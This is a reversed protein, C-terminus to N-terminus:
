LKGYGNLMSWYHYPFFMTSEKWSLTDPQDSRTKIYSHSDMTVELDKFYKWYDNYDKGSLTYHSLVYYATHDFVRVLNRNLAEASRNHELYKFIQRVMFFTLYLSTAELPEIFGGSLGVVAVNTKISETCVEPNFKLWSASDPNTGPYERSYELWADEDSIYDSSYAYGTGRRNTLPIEWIWGASRAKTTTYRNLQPLSPQPCAIARNNLHERYSKYNMEVQSALLKKFGTADIYFDASLKKGTRTILHDIGSEPNGIVQDVHDVIHQCNHKKAATKCIANGFESADVHYGYELLERAPMDETLCRMQSQHKNRDYLFWNYWHSGGHTWDEHRIGLKVTANALPMWESEEMGMENALWNIAPVTSEGVGIIPIDPSEILTVNFGKVAFYGAAMWGATGGGVVLISQVKNM